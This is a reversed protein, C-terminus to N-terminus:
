VDGLYKIYSSYKDLVNVNHLMEFDDTADTGCAKLLIKKGGPHQSLFNTVDYIKKNIIVWADNESNHLKVDQETLKSKTNNVTIHNNLIHLRRKAIHNM